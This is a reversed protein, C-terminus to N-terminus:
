NIGDNDSLLEYVLNQTDQRVYAPGAGDEWASAPLWTEPHSFGPCYRSQGASVCGTYNRDEM